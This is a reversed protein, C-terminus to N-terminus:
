EEWFEIYGTKGIDLAHKLTRYLRNVYYDDESARKGVYDNGQNLTELQFNVGELNLNGV